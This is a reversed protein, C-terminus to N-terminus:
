YAGAYERPAGNSTSPAGSGVELSHVVRETGVEHLTLGITALAILAAGSAFGLWTVTVGGFVLAAVITWSGLAAAVADLGRQAAGRDPLAIGAGAILATAIGIGLMIWMFTNLGFAQSTVLLAGGALLQALNTLYRNHM